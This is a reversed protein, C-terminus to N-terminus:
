DNQEVIYATKYTPVVKVFPNNEMQIEVFHARVKKFSLAPNAEIYSKDELSDIDVWEGYEVKKEGKEEYFKCLWFPADQSM